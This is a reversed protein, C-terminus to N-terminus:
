STRETPGKEPEMYTLVETSVGGQGEELAIAIKSAALPWSALALVASLVTSSVSSAIIRSGHGQRSSGSVLGPGGM